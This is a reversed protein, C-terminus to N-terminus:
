KRECNKIAKLYEEYNHVQKNGTEMAAKNYEKINEKEAAEQAEKLTKYVTREEIYSAYNTDPIYKVSNNDESLTISVQKIHGQTARFINFEQSKVKREPKNSWYYTNNNCKPCNVDITNEFEDPIVGEEFTLTYKGTGNCYPCCLIRHEYTSIFFCNDGVSYAAYKDCEYMDNLAKDKDQVSNELLAIESNKQRIEKQLRTITEQCENYIDSSMIVEDTVDETIREKIKTRLEDFFEDFEPYRSQEFDDCEYFYSM